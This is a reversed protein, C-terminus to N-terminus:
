VQLKGQKTAAERKTLKELQLTLRYLEGYKPYVREIHEFNTLSRSHNQSGENQVTFRYDLSINNRKEAWSGKLM